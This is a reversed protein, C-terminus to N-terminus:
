CRLRKIEPDMSVAPNNRMQYQQARLTETAETVAASDALKAHQVGEILNDMSKLKRYPWRRIGLKRCCKKLVTVGVGLNNAAEASPLHYHAQLAELTLDFKSGTMSHTATEEVPPPVILECAVPAEEEQLSYTKDTLQSEPRACGLAEPSAFYELVMCLLDGVQPQNREGNTGMGAPRHELGPRPLKKLTM